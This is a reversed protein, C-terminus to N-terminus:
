TLFDVFKITIDGFTYFYEDGFLIFSLMFLPISLLLDLLAVPGILLVYILRKLINKM